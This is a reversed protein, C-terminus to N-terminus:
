LFIPAEGHKKVMAAVQDTAATLLGADTGRLILSLSPTQGMHPYSGIDISPFDKQINELDFAIDGEKLSCQVTRSLVTPGKELFPELALFQSQMVRPIGAMVFVNEVRFGPAISEACHILKGGEPIRAMRLRGENLEIGREAYKVKMYERAEGNIPCAVNFAYAVSEATIDDHTPGIGGTTFVYTYKERLANLSDAIITRGDGVIRVEGLRIGCDSLRKGIFAINADQTSGSLIENGIVLIAATPAKTM